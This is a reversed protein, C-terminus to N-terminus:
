RYRRSCFAKHPGVMKCEPCGQPPPKRVPRTPADLVPQAPRAHTFPDLLAKRRTEMQQATEVIRANEEAGREPHERWDPMFQVVPNLLGLMDSWRRVPKISQQAGDDLSFLWSQFAEESGVVVLRM